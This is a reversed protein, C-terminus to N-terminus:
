LIQLRPGTHPQVSGIRASAEVGADHLASLAVAAQAEPLAVLLGGSTQPDVILEQRAPTTSGFDVHDSINERNAANIGTSVGREYMELAEDLVPVSDLEIELTLGSSSAMEYSHGGLGFGTVDTAAHIEFGELVEAATKNLTTLVRVCEDLAEDSVWGNLNGNFLVGSGIPKTLLLADGPQAGSNKWYRETHVIGTVSLGFKPEDDDTTHGGALVAGAETIKALAGEVIGVLVEPGLDKTPFGILNLCTLPRGGMAFVDSLSNAAAIQGFLYPDDVPPTIIDVTLVLAREDDLRYVAADDGTQFGVLLNPDVQRPLGALLRGLGVPSM